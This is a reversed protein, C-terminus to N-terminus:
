ANIGYKPASHNASTRRTRLALTEFRTLFIPLRSESKGEKKVTWGIYHRLNPWVRERENRVREMDNNEIIQDNSAKM